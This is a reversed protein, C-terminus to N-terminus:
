YSSPRTTNIAGKISSIFALIQSNTFALPGLYSADFAWIFYNPETSGGTTIDGSMAYAYLQAPTSVGSEDPTEAESIWSLVGRYDTTGQYGSFVLNSTSPFTSFDVKVDPGGVGVAYREATGFLTTMQEVTSLFNASVRLGSTPFASRAAAMWAQLQAIYAAETFGGVGLPVGIATESTAWMEFRRNADYRAGYARTLAIYRQMVAPDWLKAIMQLSGTWTTGSPADIYGPAGTATALDDFYSPLEGFSSPESYTKAAGFSRDGVGLMFQLGASQCAALLQDIMAFGQASLGSGQSYANEAFELHAWPQILMVGVVGAAGKLSAITALWNSLGGGSGSDLEIYHGPHFKIATSIPVHSVPPPLSAAPTLSPAATSSSAATSSVAATQVSISTSSSEPTSTGSAGGCGALICAMAFVWCRQAARFRFVMNM